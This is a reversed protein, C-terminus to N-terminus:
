GAGAVPRDAHHDDRAERFAPHDVLDSLFRGNNKLGLLPANVLAARLRRIADGRDRGHVIVKAVMPDYFPSVVSGQRIGDDIRVGPQLAREPQWYAVTGTQPAFGTYPDEVYLRAEIRTAVEPPHRGAARALARRSSSAAAM